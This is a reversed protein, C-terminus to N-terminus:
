ERVQTIYVIPGGSFIERVGEVRYGKITDGNKPKPTSASPVFVAKKDGMLVTEGDIEEQEFRSWYVRITYSTNGSPTYGTGAVYSGGGKSVFTVDEGHEQIMRKLGTPIMVM